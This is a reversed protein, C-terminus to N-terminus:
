KGIVAERAFNITLAGVALDANGGILESFYFIYVCHHKERSPNIVNSDHFNYMTCGNRFELSSSKSFNIIIKKCM